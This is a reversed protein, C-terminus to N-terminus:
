HLFAKRMAASDGELFGREESGMLEDMPHVAKALGMKAHGTTRALIHYIEHAVVRALALGLANQREAHGAAPDMAGLAKRVQDCEVETYPLVRGDAVLTSGLTIREGLSGFESAPQSWREAQCRGKFKVVVLGSFAQEGRNDRALKWDLAIGSPQLLRQVEAEMAELSPANPVVDFDM